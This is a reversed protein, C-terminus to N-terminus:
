GSMGITEPQDAPDDSSTPSDNSESGNSSASNEAQSPPSTETGAPPGADDEPTEEFLSTIKASGTIKKIESDKVEPHARKYAIHILAQMYAPQGLRRNREKEEEEDESPAFDAWVISAYDYIVALDDMTFDDPAPVEYLDDGIKFNLKTEDAM